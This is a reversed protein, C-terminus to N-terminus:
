GCKKGEIIEALKDLEIKPQKKKQKGLELYNAKEQAELEGHTPASPATVAIPTTLIVTM